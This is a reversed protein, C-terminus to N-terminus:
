SNRERECVGVCGCGLVGVGQWVWVGAREGEREEKRGEKRKQIEEEISFVKFQWRIYLVGGM